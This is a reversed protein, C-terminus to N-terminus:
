EVSKANELSVRAKSQLIGLLCSVREYSDLETREEVTLNGQQSKEALAHMRRKDGERFGLAIISRAADTSLSAQEPAIVRALIESDNNSTISSM